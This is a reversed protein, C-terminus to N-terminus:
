NEFSRRKSDTCSSCRGTKKKRDLIQFIYAVMFIDLVIFATQYHGNLVVSISSFWYLLGMQVELPIKNLVFSFIVALLIGTAAMLYPTLSANPNIGHVSLAGFVLYMGVWDLKNSFPTKFGHYIGSGLGLAILALCMVIYALSQNRILLYLGAIVYAINSYTNYPGIPFTCRNCIQDENWGGRTQLLKCHILDM